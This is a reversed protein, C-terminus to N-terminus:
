AQQQQRVHVGVNPRVLLTVPQRVPQYARVLVVRIADRVAALADLVAALADLVLIAVDLVYMKVVQKATELAVTVVLILM